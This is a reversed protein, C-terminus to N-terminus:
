KPGLKLYQRYSIRRVPTKYLMRDIAQMPRMLRSRFVYNSLLSFLMLEPFEQKVAFTKRLLAVEGPTLPHEEPDGHKPIWAKGTLRKRCWMLLKSAGNNEYFFAKGDPNLSRRLKDVFADFPELHHLVMSGFILDFPELTDIDEADMCRAELNDIGNERAFAELNTVAVDSLDIATVQAGHAAFFLSVKGSGCGIDLLRKGKVDGFWELAATCVPDDPSPMAVRSYDGEQGQAFVRNWHEVVEKSVREGRITGKWM